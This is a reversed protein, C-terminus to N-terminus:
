MIFFRGPTDPSAEENLRSVSPEFSIEFRASGENESEKMEIGEVEGNGFEEINDEGDPTSMEHKQWALSACLLALTKGAVHASRPGPPPPLTIEMFDRKPEMSASLSLYGYWLGYSGGPPRPPRQQPSGRNQGHRGNPRPVARVPLERARGGCHAAGIVYCLSM